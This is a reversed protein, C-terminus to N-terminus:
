FNAIYVYVTTQGSPLSPAAYVVRGLTNAATALATTKNDMQNSLAAADTGQVGPIMLCVVRSNTPLPTQSADLYFNTGDTGPVNTTAIQCMLHPVNSYNFDPAADPNCYFYNNTPSWLLPHAMTGTPSNNASGLGVNIPSEMFREALLVGDLTCANSITTASAASLLAGNLVFASSSTSNTIPPYGLGGPKQVFQQLASQVHQATGIVNAIAGSKRAKNVGVAVIGAILGIIGLVGLVELLTFGRTHKLKKQNKNKM